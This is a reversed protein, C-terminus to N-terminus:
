GRFRFLRVDEWPGGRYRWLHLGTATVGRLRLEGSVSGVLRRAEAESAATAITVHPQFGFADEEALWPAWEAALEERLASIRPSRLFVAVGHELPRVGALALEVPRERGAVKELFARIERSREGPLARFLTAHAPVLNREAAYYRRRLADLHAFSEGDLELTLVLPARTGVGSGSAM